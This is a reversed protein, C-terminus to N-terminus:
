SMWPLKGLRMRNANRRGYSDWNRQRGVTTTNVCSAVLRVVLVGEIVGVEVGVLAVAVGSAVAVSAGISVAVGLTM